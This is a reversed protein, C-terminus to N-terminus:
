NIEIVLLLLFKCLEFQLLDCDVARFEIVLLCAYFYGIEFFRKEHHISYQIIQMVRDLYGSNSNYGANHFHAIGRM